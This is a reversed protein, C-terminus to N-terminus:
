KRQYEIAGIDPKERKNGLLDEKVSSIQKGADICPSNEALSFSPLIELSTFGSLDNWIEINEATNSKVVGWKDGAKVVRGKLEDAKYNAGSVFVTTVFKFPDYSTSFPILQVADNKFGPTKAINNEGEVSQKSLNNEFVAPADVHMGGWMINNYVKNGKLDFKTEILLLNEMMTNNAIEAECRQFYVGNNYACLNNTFEGRSEMTFRMVGSNKSPNKNGMFINKDVTVYFKDKPPITDLPADYRHEQGGVFLAGADDGSDNDLFINKRVVASSWLAVWVGGADNNALAKNGIIINNEIAPNSWNFVAVAGGDSSRMPDDLGSTNNIFINNSITGGCNNNFAVGAGRGNETENKYFVNNLIQPSAGDSACVAGGDNAKEHWYKPKWNQPGLTKNSRFFNNSIKPSVSKCLIAGGDGRVAGGRFIFGDITSNNSGLLIRHNNNGELVTEYTFIDRDWKKPKFGGISILM